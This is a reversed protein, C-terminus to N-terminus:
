AAGRLGLMVAFVILGSVVLTLVLVGLLIAVLTWM